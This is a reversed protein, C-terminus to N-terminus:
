GPVSILEKKACVERRQCGTLVFVKPLYKGKQAKNETQYIKVVALIKFKKSAKSINCQGSHWQIIFLFIYQVTIYTLISTSNDNKQSSNQAPPFIGSMM